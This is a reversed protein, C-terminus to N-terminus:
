CVCTSSIHTLRLDMTSICIGTYLTDSPTLVSAGSQHYSLVNRQRQNWCDATTHPPSCGTTSILSLRVRHMGTRLHTSCISWWQGTTFLQTPAALELCNRNYM